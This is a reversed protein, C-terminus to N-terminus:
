PIQTKTVTVNTKTPTGVFTAGNVLRGYVDGISYNDPYSTARRQAYYGDVKVNEMKVTNDVTFAAGSNVTGVIGAVMGSENNVAINHIKTGKISSNTITVPKTTYGVFGGVNAIGCVDSETIHVNEVTLSTMYNEVSGFLVGAFGNGDDIDTVNNITLNEINLNKITVNGSSTYSFLGCSYDDTTDVNVNKITHGQGDFETNNLVMWVVTPYSSFDLDATLVIKAKEAASLKSIGEWEAPSSIQAVGNVVTPKIAPIKGTTEDFCRLEGGNVTINQPTSIGDNYFYVCSYQENAITNGELNITWNAANDYHNATTKHTWALIGYANGEITNNKFNLVKDNDKRIIQVASAGKPLKFTNGEFDANSSIQFTRVNTATACDIVCNKVILKSNVDDGAHLDRYISVDPDTVKIVCNEITYTTKGYHNYILTNNRYNMTGSVGSVLNEDTLTVNKVVVNNAPNKSWIQGAIVVDAPNGSASEITVAVGAPVEVVEDYTGAALAIAVNGTTNAADEFVEAITEYMKDGVSVNYEKESTSNNDDVIVNKIGDFKQDISINFKAPNTLIWGIINTRYNRQVPVNEFVTVPDNTQGDKDEWYFKVTTLQKDDGANGVLLYNLALYDYLEADADVNPRLESAITGDGNMDITLDATPVAAMDFTMDLTGGVTENSFANFASYVDTVVVKSKEVEIGAAKAADIDKYLSGINLQAFPRYLTVNAEYPKLTESSKVDIYNTFADRQEINSNQPTKVLINTMDAVDYYLSSGNTNGTYAFFAVRYAQGKVLRISYTATRNSIAVYQRLDDLEVGNEDYVACAVINASTGDGIDARTGMGDATGITFKANVYNDSTVDDIANDQSCSTAMLMGAVALM